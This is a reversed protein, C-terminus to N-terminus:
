KIGLYERMVSRTASAAKEPDPDLVMLLTKDPSTRFIRETIPSMEGFKIKGLLSDRFRLKRSAMFETMNM